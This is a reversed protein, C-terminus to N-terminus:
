VQKTGVTDTPGTFGPGGAAVYGHSAGSEEPSIWFSFLQAGTAHFRLSIPRDQLRALDEAHMWTLRGCTNDSRLPRCNMRTFPALVKGDPGLVEASLEGGEANANVFLHRGNFTLPVTTLTGAVGSPADMSAFGDRRLVALGTSGGAYMHGGLRPSIGSWGGFYFHLQDGVILCVGGAPHLYGRNWDGPRQTCALFPTRDPRDWHIGDRSYALTLDTIKPFGGKECIENPPGKHILWVSLMLSEYGVGDVRYLQTEYGLKPDPPDLDDASAFFIVDNKSWRAGEVFDKCERYSRVRGRKNSTRISYFWTKRFPNYFFSTNDGCVGAAAPKSWHIGDPSTFVFGGMSVAPSQPAYLEGYRYGAARERFYVFMKFRQNADSTESDLWVTAGDRQFPDRRPLVRNTGAEVDLHPRKWHIGDESVAYGVGDFWGAHYWMKFLRDKADYFVGDSFPCAVPCYGNNMELPTEPKLIPSAPHIRPKHFTRRLTTERVLYDDVFLQRGTGIPAPGPVRPFQGWLPAATSAGALAQLFRRRKLNMM